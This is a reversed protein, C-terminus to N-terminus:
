VARTVVGLVALAVCDSPAGDSALARSGDALLAGQRAAPARADQRAGLGVLQPRPCLVTVEGLARMAQALALLGPANVGDDNTVLIHMSCDYFIYESTNKDFGVVDPEGGTSEMAHLSALKEPHAQLKAQIKSWDLGKHRNMNKEFRAQLTKLLEEGQQPSVDLNIEIKPDPKANGKSPAKAMFQSREM